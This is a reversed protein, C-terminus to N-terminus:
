EHVLGEFNALITQVKDKTITGCAADSVRLLTALLTSWGESEYPGFRAPIAERGLAVAAAYRRHGDVIVSNCDLTITMDVRGSIVSELFTPKTKNKYHGRRQLRMDTDIVRLRDVTIDSLLM